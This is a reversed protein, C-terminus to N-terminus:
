QLGPGPYNYAYKKMLESTAENGRAYRMDRDTFGHMRSEPDGYHLLAKVMGSSGKHGGENGKASEGKYKFTDTFNGGVCECALKMVEKGHFLLDEYRISLHPFKLHEREWDGYWYNYVDLLSEHKKGNKFLKVPIIEDHDTIDRRILNPCHEEDHRSNWITVGYSHRCQSNMWSFPDKIMMFPFFITQNIGKGSPATRNLRSSSLEHKGWPAQWHIKGGTPMACNTRILEFLLNTGTNTLGAPGIIRDEPKIMERYRQCTELGHIVPKDGYMSKVVDWTPLQKAIDEEFITINAAKLISQIRVDVYDISGTNNPINHQNKEIELRKDLDLSAMNHLNVMIYTSIAFLAFIGLQKDISKPALQRTSSKKGSCFM